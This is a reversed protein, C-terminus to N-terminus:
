KQLNARHGNLFSQTESNLQIELKMGKTIGFVRQATLGLKTSICITGDNFFSILHKDFLADIPAALLLGNNVDVREEETCQSWPKIHSAILLEPNNLRTLVCRGQFTALLKDRFVGQKVRQMIVVEKETATIETSDQDPASQPVIATVPTVNSKQKSRLPRALKIQQGSSWNYVEDLGQNKGPLYDNSTFVIHVPNATTTDHEFYTLQGCYIFPQTIGKISSYIRTFLLVVKTGNVMSRITPTDINLQPQSDWHFLNGDFYDNFKHNDKKSRKDLDVWIILSDSNKCRFLGPSLKTTNVLSPENSLEGIEKKTYRSGIQFNLHLEDM